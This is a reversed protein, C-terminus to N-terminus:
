SRSSWGKPVGAMTKGISQHEGAQSCGSKETWRSNIKDKVSKGKQDALWGLWFKPKPFFFCQDWFTNKVWLLDNVKCESSWYGFLHLLYFFIKYSSKNAGFNLMCVLSIKCQCSLLTYFDLIDTCCIQFTCLYMRIICHYLDYVNVFM